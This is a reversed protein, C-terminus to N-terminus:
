GALSGPPSGSLRHKRGAPFRLVMLEQNDTYM